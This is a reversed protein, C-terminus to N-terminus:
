LLNETNFDIIDNCIPSPRSFEGTKLFNVVDNGFYVGRKYVNLAVEFFEAIGCMEQTKFGRLRYRQHKDIWIRVKYRKLKLSTM